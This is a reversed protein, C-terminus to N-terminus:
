REKIEMVLSLFIDEIKLSFYLGSPSVALRPLPNEPLGESTMTIKLLRTYIMSTEIIHPDVQTVPM